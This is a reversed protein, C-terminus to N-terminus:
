VQVKGRVEAIRARVLRKVMAASPPSSLPFRITAKSVVLGELDAAHVRLIAASIPYLSVHNKWGAYWVLTEGDLKFAPIRYSFAEIAGPAAARIAARLKKVERRVEVPLAAIYTRVQSGAARAAM